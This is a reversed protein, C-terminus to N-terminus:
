MKDKINLARCRSVFSFVKLHVASDTLINCKKGVVYLFTRLLQVAVRFGDCHPTEILCKAVTTEVKLEGCRWTNKAAKRM